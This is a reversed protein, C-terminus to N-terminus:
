TQKKVKQLIKLTKISFINYYKLSLYFNHYINLMVMHWLYNYFIKKQGEYKIPFINDLNRLINPVIDLNIKYYNEM